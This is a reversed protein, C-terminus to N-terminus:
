EKTITEDLNLLVRSVVTWAALQPATVGKLLEPPHVADGAALELPNQKDSAFYKEENRLLSLIEALEEGTPWRALCRRFAYSIRREDTSGGEVLTRVALARAADVFLPENLTTLAQLPTNSRARRVCAADGNPADFTELMPYPVSRYRFTYLARRFRDAGKSEEWRKPSYSAPPVFLFAPAPPFVSRGGVKANLLGSAALAIDRVIEADVRFRPGRALLRNYPDKAYREATSSSSQRYTASTTILRMLAKVDWGREMFEVALWDLLEPHSPPEGQTGFNEPSAVIGTGFYVQWVRNVFARAATPSKRDVMWRAFTLRTSLAGAPLPNLFAPVGQTVVRVPKLFDGRELIHTNRAMSRPSVVLQREGEPFEKWLRLIKENAERWEPAITRWYRFVTEIQQDSREGRPIALIDRVSKPLPDATVGGESTVSLRFRGLNNNDAYDPNNGGHRQLLTFTLIAGGPFDIPKAAVFVAKRSQNRLGPGADIGWGTEARGDIAFAVPGIVSPMAPRDREETNPTPEAMPVDQFRPGLQTEPIEIDATASAIKVNETKEPTSVPAAAVKFETLACMGNESRGPGNLPLNPDTLLELRFATINRLDTKATLKLNLKTPAFGGARLSGDPLLAYKQGTTSNADVEPRLVTWLPQDNAVRQEWVAMREQWRPDRRRMEAEIEGIQRYIAQRRAEQQPTFVSVEAEDTNNLFALMRYYEEQTLPDYKHNHCQACQITLGLISKGIADMRDFMAEMRFQEPDIGGEENLMSNRLFGTAVVRDQTAHPLEDGAIQDIVFQDYRMNRNFANIVWDRYFWVERPRDKEFGNSDAYRAGDLWVRAWREGYHPSTLLRDVQKEYAGRSRDKLFADIEEPTPPLGTLDLSLRRLLTTRDAEPSPALSEKELRALIFNDIANRPWKTDKVKPQAPRVPPIFAWHRSEQAAVAAGTDPWEAGRDIWARILEIEAADLKGGMPMRAADGIGAVRQYLPSQAAKGAVIVRGMAPARSDLRLNAMQTKAGHCGYCSRAFIPQIDKVFDVDTQARGTFLGGTLLLTLSLFCAAIWATHFRVCQDGRTEKM